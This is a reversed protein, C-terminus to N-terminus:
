RLHLAARLRRAADPRRRVRFALYTCWLFATAVWSALPPRAAAAHPALSPIDSLVPAAVALAAAPLVIM